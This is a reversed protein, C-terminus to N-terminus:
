IFKCVTYLITYKSYLFLPLSKFILVQLCVFLSQELLYENDMLPKFLDINIKSINGKGTCRNYLVNLIYFLFLFLSPILICLGYLFGLTTSVLNQIYFFDASTVNLLDMKLHIGYVKGLFPSSFMIIHLFYTISLFASCLLLFFFALILTGMCLKYQRLSRFLNRYLAPNCEFLYIEKMKSRIVSCMKRSSVILNLWNFFVLVTFLPALFLLLKPIICIAQISYHFIWWFIYKYIVKRPLSYGFYRVALYSNLFSILMFQTIIMMGFTIIMFTNAPYIYSFALLPHFSSCNPFLEHFKHLYKSNHYLHLDMQPTVLTMCFCIIIELLVLIILFIDRNRVTELAYLIESRLHSDGVYEQRYHKYKKLTTNLRYILVTLWFTLLVILVGIIFGFVFEVFSESVM